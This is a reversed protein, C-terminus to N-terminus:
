EENNTIGNEKMWQYVPIMSKFIFLDKKIDTMIIKPELINQEMYYRRAVNDWVKRTLSKPIRLVMRLDIPFGMEKLCESYGATQLSYSPSIANSTKYDVCGILGDKFRAIADLRGAVEMSESHVLMESAMWKDINKKEWELFLTVPRELEEDLYGDVGDKIHREIWNHIKTGLRMAEMQERKYAYRGETLMSKKEWESYFRTVDWREMLHEYGLKTAWKILYDKPFCEAVSSCGSYVVGDSKRTYSHAEDNYAIPCEYGMARLANEIEM